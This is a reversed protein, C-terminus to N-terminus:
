LKDAEKNEIWSRVDSERYRVRSRSNDGLKIFRPGFGASRWKRLCVQTVKLLQAVEKSTLLDEMM